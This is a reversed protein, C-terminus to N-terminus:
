GGTVHANGDEDLWYECDVLEFGEPLFCVREGSEDPETSLWHIPVPNGTATEILRM